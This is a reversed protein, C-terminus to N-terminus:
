KCKKCHGHIVVDLIEKDKINIKEKIEEVKKCKDCVFHYHDHSINEYSTIDKNILIKKIKKEKVLKELNRFITSYDAEPINKHIESISLLHKKCLLALIKDKYINKNM